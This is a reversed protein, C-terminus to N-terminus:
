SESEQKLTVAIRSPQHEENPGRIGKLKFDTMYLTENDVTWKYSQFVRRFNETNYKVTVKCDGEPIIGGVEWQPRDAFGWRVHGSITYDTYVPQWYEGQCGSCFVNTSEGTVPDLYCGSVVCATNGEHVTVIVGRGVVNRMANIADFTEEPFFYTM